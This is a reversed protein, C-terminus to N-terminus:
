VYVGIVCIDDIQEFSDSEELKNPYDMWEEIKQNLIEKQEEMSKNNISMLLRKFAKYKFKKGKPGGFQDPFGDSAVYISDGKQLRLIHNTFTGEMGPYYAIPMKNAKIEYLSLGNEKLYPELEIKNGDADALQTEGRRIIYLPNNAGAYEVITRDHNIACLAADMGDKSEGGEGQKLSKIVGAKVGDLIKAPETIGKENVTENLLSTGIMSMFAGPVGHGTCDASTFLVKGDKESMWYFDGSVIDKPRFLVFSDPLIQQKHEDQPLIARQIKEAYNISDMIDQNKEEIEEKQRVVEATREVVIGELVEKERELRRSNLKIGAYLVGIFFLVYSIYAWITRYWPPLITFEYVAENSEYGYLNKAKVRFYYAGEPLNTYNKKTERKWKTWERDYGELFYSYQRDDEQEFSQAAVIFTISNNAYPFVFKFVDPQDLAVLGKEDSYNGAYIVSDEGLTVKRILANFPKEYNKEINADYRYLGDPGGLWTIGDKDHYLAHIIGQESIEIFPTKNWHLGKDTKQMYGIEFGSKYYTIIWIQGNHDETIRHVGKTNPKKYQDFFIKFEPDPIATQTKEDITFIGDGTAMLPRDQYYLVVVDGIPMDYKTIQTSIIKNEDYTIGLKLVGKRQTTGIWVNGDPDEEIKFITEEIGEIRDEQIWKGNKRYLSMLGNGLGVFVRNPDKKSQFVDYAVCKMILNAKFNKDIEYVGDDLSALLLTDSETNFPELYWCAINIESLKVLKSLHASLNEQPGIQGSSVDSSVYYLGTQSGVFLTGFQRTIGEITGEMGTKEDFNTIPSKVKVRSIGNSLALWLNENNDLYQYQIVGDQLGTSKNIAQVLRGAHDIIAIGEGWTGIAFTKNGLNLGKNARNYILFEDIESPFPLVSAMNNHTNLFMLYIEDKSTIVAMHRKDYQVVANIKKNNFINSGRILNLSDGDVRVLGVHDEQLLMMDKVFFSRRFKTDSGWTKMKKGDWLFLKSYTQFYVGKKTAYVEWVVGFEKDSSDIHDILSVYTMKGVLDPTLYGLDNESGVFIKGNKDIALSRVPRNNATKIRIWKEGDFELISNNNGFYMVGRKDQM